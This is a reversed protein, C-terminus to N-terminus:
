KKRRRLRPARLPARPFPAHSTPFRGDIEALTDQAGFADIEIMKEFLTIGAQRCAGGLRHLTLALDTLQPAVAAASTRIDGLEDRWAASLKLAFEGVLEAEFPLMEQLREVVFHSPAASLDTTPATFARLLETTSQDLKFEPMIRFIDMAAAVVKKSAGNLVKVLTIRAAATLEEEAYIHAAAYALGIKMPETGSNIIGDRAQVWDEKGKVMSVLGVLEGYAQQLFPLESAHFTQIQDFVFQDDWRQAHALFVITDSSTLIWPFRAFVKRLFNSVVLPTSGGANGLRHLLAQWVEPDRERPLHEELLEFYRDRGPEALNLLIAALASLVTYNGGPLSYVGGLDWIISGERAEDKSHRSRRPKDADAGEDNPAPTLRLWGILTNTVKDDIAGHRNAIKEIARAASDRFEDNQFGREALKLFTDIVRRDNGDSDALADLAYAAAREQQGIEFQDILGIARDPDNKAFDAFARSLQISGGRMWDVPHSWGTEDPIERLINLIDEDKAKAMAAAEMPSGIFGGQSQGVVHDYRDGLARQEVAVLDKVDSGLRDLGVAQLLDKRTARVMDAFRKRAKPDTLHPPTAPAYKKVCHAFTAVEDDTWCPASAKVLEVTASRLGRATGLQLRREDELLWALTRSAFNEPQAEYGLAILRQVAMIDVRSNTEAWALFTDPSNASLQEVATLLAATVPKERGGRGGLSPELELVFHGDFLYSASPSDWTTLVAKFVDLYWPWLNDLFEAPHEAVLEPLNYWDTTDLLQDFVRAKAHKAFGAALQDKLEDEDSPASAEKRAANLLFDFRARILRMAVDPQRAALNQATHDVPWTSIATRRLVVGAIEEIEPTWFPCDQITMWTHGDRETMPLWCEKILQIIQNSHAAWNRLLIRATQVAEADTGKMAERVATMAFIPFWGAGNAIAKLGFPRFESSKLVEGMCVQEFQLPDALQGLFEILLFRLHSRLDPQKWIVLLEREYSSPEAGRLYNLAAWMKARVFLSDQRELVYRSLLGGKKVFSRALVYEFVTQHSFAVSLNNDSRVVLGLAELRKLSPIRADFRASALWLAEEEAMTGALESALQDLNDRDAASAIRDLWLQELMAQYTTFPEIRGNGALRIFTKLAQPIRVVDRAKEPWGDPDIGIDVLQQRVEHWPPLMLTVQEAGVARLRVDHSFEFTRASLLIHINPVGGLRRVFNLLVNLRDSRLDLQSALADLQDIIVYVPQLRALRLVLDSPLAPLRLEDKLDAESIVKPSIFDSKLAFVIEGRDKLRAALRSLLASKGSGPEGLLVTTSTESKFRAEITAWEPREMWQGNPLTQEWALLDASAASLAEKASDAGEIMSTPIVGLLTGDDKVATRRLSELDLKVLDSERVSVILRVSGVEVRLFTLDDDDLMQKLRGIFDDIKEQPWEARTGAFNLAVGVRGNRTQPAPHSPPPSAPTAPVPDTAPRDPTPAKSKFSLIAFAFAAAHAAAVPQNLTDAVHDKGACMDSIGRVIITPVNEHRGATMVGFGEMEVAGCDNFHKRIQKFRTSKGGAVVEEGSVIGKIAAEPPFPRPYRENTTDAGAPPKILASWEELHIIARAAHLYELDAAHGHPRGLTEKDEVKASHGNYVYDGIVVSGIPIDDKLSGAVGVFMIVGFRGFEQCAKTATMAADNNGQASIAHIALWEGAPDSFRGYEYFRGNDGILIESGSLHAKVARSEHTVTTLILVRRPHDTFEQKVHAPTRYSM